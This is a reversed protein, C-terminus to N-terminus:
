REITESFKRESQICRDFLNCMSYSASKIIYNILHPILLQVYKCSKKLSWLLIDGVFTLDKNTTGSTFTAGTYLRIGLM